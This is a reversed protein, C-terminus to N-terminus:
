KIIKSKKDAVAELIKDTKIKAEQEIFFRNIGPIWRLWRVILDLVKRYIIQPKTLEKMIAITTKSGEAIVKQQDSPSLKFYIDALGQELIGEIKQYKESSSDYVQIPVPAQRQEGSVVVGGSTEPKQSQKEIEVPQQNEVTEKTEPTKESISEPSLKLDLKEKEFQNIGM